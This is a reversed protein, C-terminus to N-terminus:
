KYFLESPRLTASSGAGKGEKKQLAERQQWKKYLSFIPVTHDVWTILGSRPGLPIVSYHEARYHTVNGNCDISKTMMLNAISLFQM